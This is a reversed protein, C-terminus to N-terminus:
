RAPGQENKQPPRRTKQPESKGPAVHDRHKADRESQPAYLAVSAAQPDRAALAERLADVGHTQVMRQFRKGSKLQEVNRDITERDFPPRQAPDAEAVSRALMHRAFSDIVQRDDGYRALEKACRAEREWADERARADSRLSPYRELTKRITADLAPNEEFRQLGFLGGLTQEITRGM